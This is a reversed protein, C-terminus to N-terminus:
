LTYQQRYDSRVQGSMAHCSILHDWIVFRISGLRNQNCHNRRRWTFITKIMNSVNLCKAAPLKGRKTHFPPCQPAWRNSEGSLRSGAESTNFFHQLHGEDYRSISLIDNATLRYPRHHWEGNTASPRNVNCAVVPIIATNNVM